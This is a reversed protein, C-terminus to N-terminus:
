AAGHAVPLTFRFTAGSMEGKKANNQASLRGGHAEVITRSVALGIGMGKPKTTVFPDFVRPLVEPAIGRGSDAVTVEVTRGDGFRAEIVVRRVRNASDCVADMGNVLLNLLVQSLQVRDGRVAPLGEPVACEITVHRAAADSRVLELVDQVLAQLSVQQLELSNRKLLARMREIIAGARQDDSHIDSVIARLEALDPQEAALLLEAAEANRLIAGLPQSLEHALSGSLESLTSVRAVHALEDRLRRAEGEIRASAVIHRCLEYTMAGLMILFPPSLMVPMRLVGWVVLQSQLTAVVLFGVIGGGVVLATRRSERDPKRWLALAADVGYAVFLLATATALWQLPRLAAESSAVALGGLWPVEDIRIVQWTAGPESALNAVSVVGRMAIVTWGLWARGTGFHWRIFLVLGATLFLLPVHLWRVWAAYEAATGAQMMGFEIRAIAAVSLAVICFALNALGRRDLLWVLGHVAALTLAAAGVVTWMVFLTGGM